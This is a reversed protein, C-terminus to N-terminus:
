MQKQLQGAYECAIMEIKVGLSKRPRWKCILITKSSQLAWSVVRTEVEWVLTSVAWCIALFTFVKMIFVKNQLIRLSGVLILILLQLTKSYAIFVSHCLVSEGHKLLHCSGATYLSLFFLFPPPSFSFFTILYPPLHCLFLCAVSNCSFAQKM